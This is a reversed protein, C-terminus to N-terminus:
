GLGTVSFGESYRDILSNTELYALAEYLARLGFGLSEPDRAEAELLRRPFPKEVSSDIVALLYDAQNRALAEIM